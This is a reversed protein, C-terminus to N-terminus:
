HEQTGRDPPKKLGLIPRKKANIDTSSAGKAAKDHVVQEIRADRGVRATPSSLKERASSRRFELTDPDDAHQHIWMPRKAKYAQKVEINKSTAAGANSVRFETDAKSVEEMKSKIAELTGKDAFGCIKRSGYKGSASRFVSYNDPHVINAEDCAVYSPGDTDLYETAEKLRRPLEISNDNKRHSIPVVSLLDGRHGIVVANRPKGNGDNDKIAIKGNKQSVSPRYIFGMRIIAGVPIQDTM